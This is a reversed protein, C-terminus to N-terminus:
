ALENGKSGNFEAKGLRPRFAADWLLPKPTHYPWSPSSALVEGVNHYPGLDTVGPQLTLYSTFQSTGMAGKLRAWPRAPHARKYMTPAQPCAGRKYLRPDSSM